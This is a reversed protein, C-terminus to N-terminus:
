RCRQVRIHKAYGIFADTWRVDILNDLKQKKEADTLPAGPLDNESPIVPKGGHEKFVNLSMPANMSRQLRFAEGGM